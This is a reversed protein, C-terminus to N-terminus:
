SRALSDLHQGRRAYSKLMTHERAFRVGNRSWNPLRHRSRAISEIVRCLAENDRTKVAEGIDASELVGAFAENAYGVIPVGQSMMEIYTLSPDGQPHCCLFLDYDTALKPILEAYAVFGKVHVKDSLGYRGIRQKLESTLDGDGFIDLTFPVSAANLLRAVEVLQDAGKMKNVRGSFVLRLTTQNQSQAIRQELADDGILMDDTLRCDYFLMPSKNLRVYAKYTPTGNCQLGDAARVCHHYLREQNLAWVARRAQRLPNGGNARIVQLRTKITYESCYVFPANVEKAWDVLHVQQHQLSGLAVACRALQKKVETSDYSLLEIDFELDKPNIELDLGALHGRAAAVESGPKPEVVALMRGDWFEQHAKMGSIFRRELMLNGNPLRAGYMSPFVGLVRSSAM